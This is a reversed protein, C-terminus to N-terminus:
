KETECASPASLKGPRTKLMLPVEAVVSDEAVAASLAPLLVLEDM